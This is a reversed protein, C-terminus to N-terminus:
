DLLKPLKVTKYGNYIYNSPVECGSVEVLSFSRITSEFIGILFLAGFPEFSIACSIGECFLDKENRQYCAGDKPNIKQASQRGCSADDKDGTVLGKELTFRRECRLLIEPKDYLHWERVLGDDYGCTVFIDPERLRCLHRGLHCPPANSDTALVPVYMETEPKWMWVMSKGDPGSSVIRNNVQLVLLAFCSMGPMKMFCLPYVVPEVCCLPVRLDNSLEGGEDFRVTVVSNHLLSGLPEVVSKTEGNLRLAVENCVVGVAAGGAVKTGHKPKWKSMQAGNSAHVSEGAKNLSPPRVGSQPQQSQHHQESALLYRKMYDAERLWVHHNALRSARSRVTQLARGHNHNSGALLGDDPSEVKQMASHVDRQPQKQEALLLPVLPTCTNVDWCLPHTSSAEPDAEGGCLPKWSLKDISWAFLGSDTGALLRCDGDLALCYIPSRFERTTNHKSVDERDVMGLSSHVSTRNPSAVLVHLLTYEKKLVDVRWLRVTTADDGTFVYIAAREQYCLSRRFVDQASKEEDSHVADLAVQDSSEMRSVFVGGEWLKLCRLARPHPICVLPTPVPHFFSMAVARDASASAVITGNHDLALVLEERAHRHLLRRACCHAPVSDPTPPQPAPKLESVLGPFRKGHREVLVRLFHIPLLPVAFLHGNDTGTFFYEVQTFASITEHDEM